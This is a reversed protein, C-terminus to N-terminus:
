DPKNIKAMEARVIEAAIEPLRRQLYSRIEERVIARTRQEGDDEAAPSAEPSPAAETNGEPAFETLVLVDEGSAAGEGIQRRISALIDEIALGAASADSKPPERTKKAAM